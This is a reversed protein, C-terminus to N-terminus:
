RRVICRSDRIGETPPTFSGNCSRGRTHKPPGQRLLTDIKTEKKRAPVPQSHAFAVAFSRLDPLVANCDSSRTAAISGYVRSIVRLTM